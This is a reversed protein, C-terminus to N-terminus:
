RTPMATPRAMSTPMMMLKPKRRGCKVAPTGGTPVSNASKTPVTKRWFIRNMPAPVMPTAAIQVKSRTIPGITRPM